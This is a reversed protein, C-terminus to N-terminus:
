MQALSAIIPLAATSKAPAQQHTGTIFPKVSTAFQRTAAFFVIHNQLVVNLQLQIEVM